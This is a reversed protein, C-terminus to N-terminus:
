LIKTDEFRFIILTQQSAWTKAIKPRYWNTGRDLLNKRGLVAEQARRHTVSPMPTTM